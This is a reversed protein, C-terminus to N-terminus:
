MNPALYRREWLRDERESLETRWELFDIAGRLIRVGDGGEVSAIAMSVEESAEFGRFWAFVAAEETDGEEKWLPFRPLGLFNTLAVLLLPSRLFEAPAGAKEMKSNCVPGPFEVGVM